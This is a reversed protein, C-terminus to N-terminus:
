NYEHSSNRKLTTKDISKCSKLSSYHLQLTRLQTHFDSVEILVIKDKKYRLYDCSKFDSCNIKEKLSNKGDLKIAKVTLINTGFSKCELNIYEKHQCINM